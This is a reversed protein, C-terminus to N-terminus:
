KITAPGACSRWCHWRGGVRNRPGKREWAYFPDRGMRRRESVLGVFVQDVGSLTPRALGLSHQRKLEASRLFSPHLHGVIVDRVRLHRAPMGLLHGGDDLM